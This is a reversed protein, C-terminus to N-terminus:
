KKQLKENITNLTLLLTNKSTDNGADRASKRGDTLNAPSDPVNPMTHVAPDAEMLGDMEQLPSGRSREPPPTRSHDKRKAGHDAM